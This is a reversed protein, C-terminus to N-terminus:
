SIPWLFNSFEELNPFEWDPADAPSAPEEEYHSGDSYRVRATRMGLTRAGRFDKRPNDGVYIAGESGAHLLELARVFPVASPKWDATEDEGMIVVAPLWAHLGLARVKSTQVQRRGETVLGMRLGAAEGRKLLARAEPRLQISPEHSRLIRIMDPLGSESLNKEALWWQFTDGRFGSEYHSTLEALTVASSFAWRAEAWDAVARFGSMVYSREPFLTDDLDFLLTQFDPHAM